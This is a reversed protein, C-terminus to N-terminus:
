RVWAAASLTAVGDARVGPGSIEFDRSEGPEMREGFGDDVIAGLFEGDAGIFEVGITPSGFRRVGQTEHITGRVTTIGDSGAEWELDTVRLPLGPVDDM